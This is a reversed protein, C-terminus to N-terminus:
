DEPLDAHAVYHIANVGTDTRGAGTINVLTGSLLAFAKELAGQVTDANNQIQWGCFKSGNYSLTIKYRM